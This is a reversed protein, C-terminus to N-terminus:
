MTFGISALRNTPLMLFATSFTVLFFATASRFTPRRLGFMVEVGEMELAKILAQAGTIKM